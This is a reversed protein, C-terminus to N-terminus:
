TWSFYKVGKGQNPKTGSSIEVFGDSKVLAAYDGSGAISIVRATANGELKVPM